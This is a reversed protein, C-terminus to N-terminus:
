AEFVAINFLIRYSNKPNTKLNSELIEKALKINGRDVYSNSKIISLNHCSNNLSGSLPILYQLSIGHGKMFYNTYELNNLNKILFIADVYIFSEFVPISQMAGSIRILKIRKNNADLQTSIRIKKHRM